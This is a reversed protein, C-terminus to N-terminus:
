TTISAYNAEKTQIKKILSITANRHLNRLSEEDLDDYESASKVEPEKPEEVLQKARQIILVNKAKEFLGIAQDHVEAWMVPDAEIGKKTTSLLADIRRADETSVSDGVTYDRLAMAVNEPSSLGILDESNNRGVIM